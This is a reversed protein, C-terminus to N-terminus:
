LFFTLFVIFYESIFFGKIFILFPLLFFLLLIRKKPCKTCKCCKINPCCRNNKEEILENNIEFTNSNNQSM